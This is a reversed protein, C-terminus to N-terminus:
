LPCGPLPSLPGYLHLEGLDVGDWTAPNSDPLAARLARMWAEGVESFVDVQCIVYVYTATKDANTAISYGTDYVGIQELIPMMNLLPIGDIYVGEEVCHGLIMMMGVFDSASMAYDHGEARMVETVRDALDKLMHCSALKWESSDMDGANPPM